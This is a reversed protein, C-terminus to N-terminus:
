VKEFPSNPPNVVLNESLESIFRRGGETINVTRLAVRRRSILKGLSHPLTEVITPAKGKELLEYSVEGLLKM